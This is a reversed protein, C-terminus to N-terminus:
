KHRKVRKKEERRQNMRNQRVRIEYIMGAAPVLGLQLMAFPLMSASRCDAPRFQGMASAFIDRRSIRRMQDLKEGFSMPNDLAFIERVMLINFHMLVYEAFAEQVEANERVMYDSTTELSRIYDEEKSGDWTRVASQGTITYRYFMSDKCCISRCCGTYRIVFDSDEALRLNPDFRIGRDMIIQRRFLKSWVTMTHTPRRLLDARAADVQRAGFHLEEEGCIHIPYSGHMYSHIYFDASSDLVDSEITKFADKLLRDDADLFVIWSGAAAEIGKNRANSVGKDSQMTRILDPYKDAFSDCIEWTRDGSGNEVILIEYSLGHGTQGLVSKVTKQITKEANYAPIIISIQPQAM